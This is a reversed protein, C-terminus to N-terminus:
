IWHKAPIDVGSARMVAQEGYKTKLRDTQPYLQMIRTHDDFLWLPQHGRVLGGAKLGILRISRHQEYLKNFLDSATEIFLHDAATFPIRTEKTHTEFNAYRIKVSLVSALRGQRRLAYGLTEATSILTRQVQKLDLTDAMYTIEKSMQQQLRFPVLPSDDIGNAREWMYLGSKGYKKIIFEKPLAALMGLTKIGQEMLRPHMKPGIGPMDRVSLGELFRSIQAAPVIREGNPKATKAAMKAVTKNASIGMSVPLGSERYVSERIRHGLELAGYYRSFGSLDLYHEDISAKEFDPIYGAIIESVEQSKRSYSDWDGRVLVAEPCLQRAQNMPMASHVGFKRAEYSCAAVVGRDSSGGILVPKGFLRPNKLREVSVFFTDMDLHAIFRTDPKM